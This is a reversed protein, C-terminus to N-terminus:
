YQKVTDTLFFQLQHLFTFEFLFVEFLFWDGLIFNRKLDRLTPLPAFKSPNSTPSGRGRLATGATIVVASALFEEGTSTRVGIARASQATPACCKETLIEVVDGEFRKLCPQSEAVLRMRESYELKACQARTAWVAPGKSKNLIKSQLATADANRGMEGGLADLEHVLHSKALGGISPNCPMRGIADIKSTVLLTSRSM